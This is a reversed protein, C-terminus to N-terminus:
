DANDVYALMRDLMEETKSVPLPVLPDSLVAEMLKGTDRELSADLTLRQVAAVRRVLEQIGPPPVRPAEPVITDTRVVGYTEVPHGEPLWAVQGRNPLNVNTRISKGGVLARIIDSGEEGSRELVQAEEEPNRSKRSDNKQKRWWYPTKIVGYRHLEAESTLYWPVFEALHRDGAFGYADFRRLFDLAIRHDSEFWSQKAQRDLAVATLDRSSEPDRAFRKLEGLIDIGSWTIRSAFTFHNVGTVDIDIEHADAVRGIGRESIFTALHQQMAPVEHCCGVCKAQQFGRQIAATCLTMPNTYNIIWADPAYRAIQEGFDFFTPVARWARLIGGPGTTDGVTQQIGYEAPIELDAYRFETPGPEISLVVVDAGDLAGALSDRSTVEFRSKANPNSYLAKGLQLNTAVAAKDIDFLRLEGSLGDQLALDRMLKVAWEQSGGGIYCLTISDM